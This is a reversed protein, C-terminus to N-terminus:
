KRKLAAKLMARVDIRERRVLYAAYAAFLVLNFAYIMLKNGAYAAVAECAAFVALAVVVYECIRRWDYPTPCFRRNLWLSVGVMASESALRAWAAGYYGWQPILWFGFALMAVLGSGTVVIALSTREERKYWFSLNLWVGMLVNAGLVVPLIFIGERFDPGVILAFLDRFLAICLFILMSVMVYYKMVAANMQVFDSKKFSSLFFPEAALRYMQYFLMMVVAIKTIAGYIGMQAMSGEPVLYKIMQRDIFENATGALGGVLLPLSYVFITALLAWNIRPVTRDVTTLILLWIVASAIVNAVFVWGVGFDTAFLGAFGFCLVLVINLVVSLIRFGVYLGARRQERLRAFPICAWVDFLIILAVCVIYEPHAVYVEGMLGAIGSRCAVVVVFFVAAALSTIGWTTAFLRRKAAPVDGGAEEAKTSFRFYSSEMGMTLLTLALPILAYIDVVIGYTEQGFIYTYYPTLLYSLFRVVITSVGYVATQKALKELM